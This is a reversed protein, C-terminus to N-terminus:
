GWDRYRMDVGSQPCEECRMELWRVTKLVEDADLQEARLAVDLFRDTVTVSPRGLRLSLPGAEREVVLEADLAALQERHQEWREGDDACVVVAPRRGRLPRLAPIDRLHDIATM